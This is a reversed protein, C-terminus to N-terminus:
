LLYHVSFVIDAIPGFGGCEIVQSVDGSNELRLDHVEGTGDPNEVVLGLRSNLGEAFYFGMYGRAVAFKMKTITGGSTVSYLLRSDGTTLSYLYLDGDVTYFLQNAYAWSTAFQSNENINLGSLQTKRNIVFGIESGKEAAMGVEYYWYEDEAATNCFVIGVFGETSGLVMAKAEMNDLEGEEINDSVAAQILSGQGYADDAPHSTPREWIMESPCPYYYFEKNQDDWLIANLGNDGSPMPIFAHTVHYDEVSAEARCTFFYGLMGRSWYCKGVEDLLLMMGDSGMFDGTEDTVGGAIPPLVSMTQPMMQRYVMRELFMFPQLKTCSDREYVMLYEQDDDLMAAARNNSASYFMGEANQFRRVGMAAEYADETITVEGTNSIEAVGIRRDGLTGHLVYWSDLYPERTSMKFLKYYEVGTSHDILRFLPNYSLIAQFPYKLTLEKSFVTDYGTENSFIWQYELQEENEALSQSVIPTYTVRMTDQSSQPYSYTYVSDMTIEDPAPSFSITVIENIDRYDYNGKDEYCGMFLLATMGILIAIRTKMVKKKDM